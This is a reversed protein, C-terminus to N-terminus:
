ISPIFQWGLDKCIKSWTLDQLFLKDRSKLLPFIALYEDKELLQILKRLVYGYSLFNKRNKPMHRLFPTQMQKFMNRLTEELEPSLTPMPIGNLQHMIHPIHEYYKNMKLKKLIDKIMNHTILAMNTIKQKKIDLLIKDYLEDPIDTTEKGQAQNLWENFHNIRKYAFYSIEKPPDKYSPKDHDVLIYEITHCANCFIYGDNTMATIDLSNCFPCKMEEEDAQAINSIYNDNAYAMYKDLLSGRDDEHSCNNDVTGFYKLISNQHTSAYSQTFENANNNEVIDYYKFLLSATNTFYGLEDTKEETDKINERLSIMKDKLNVIEDVNKCTELTDQLRTLEEKLKSLYEKNKEIDSIKNSHQTDLTKKNVVYSPKNVRISKKKHLNM